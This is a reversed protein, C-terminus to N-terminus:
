VPRWVRGDPSKLVTTFSRNNVEFGLTVQTGSADKNVKLVSYRSGFDFDPQSDAVVRAILSVPMALALTGLSAFGLVQRRSLRSSAHTQVGKGSKPNVTNLICM